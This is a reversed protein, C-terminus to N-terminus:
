WCTREKRWWLKKDEWSFGRNWPVRGTVDFALAWLFFLITRWNVQSVCGEKSDDRFSDSPCYINAIAQSSILFALQKPNKKSNNNIFCLVVFFVLSSCSSHNSQMISERSAATQICHSCDPGEGRGGWKTCLSRVTYNNRRALQLAIDKKTCEWTRSNHIQETLEKGQTM